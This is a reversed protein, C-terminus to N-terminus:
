ENQGRHAHRLTDPPRWQMLAAVLPFCYKCFHMEIRLGASM